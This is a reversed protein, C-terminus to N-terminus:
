KTQAAPAADIVNAIEAPLALSEPADKTYCGVHLTQLEPQGPAYHQRFSVSVGDDSSKVTVQSVEIDSYLWQWQGLNRAGHRVWLKPYKAVQWGNEEVTFVKDTWTSTGDKVEAKAPLVIHVSPKSGTTFNGLNFSHNWNDYLSPLGLNAGTISVEVGRSTEVIKAYNYGFSGDWCQVNVEAHAIAPLSLLGLVIISKM